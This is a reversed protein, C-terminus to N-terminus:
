LSAETFVFFGEDDNGGWFGFKLFCDVAKILFM